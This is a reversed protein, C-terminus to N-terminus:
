YRAPHGLGPARSFSLPSQHGRHKGEARGGGCVRGFRCDDTRRMGLIPALALSESIAGSLGGGITGSYLFMKKLRIGVFTSSGSKGRAIEM